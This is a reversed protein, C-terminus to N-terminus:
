EYWKLPEIINLAQGDVVLQTLDLFRPKWTAIVQSGDDRRLLMQGRKPGKPAPEGDVLLRPGSFFGPALVEL